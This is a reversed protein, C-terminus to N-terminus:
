KVKLAVLAPLEYIEFKDFAPLYQNPVMTLFTFGATGSANNGGYPNSGGDYSQDTWFKITNDGAELDMYITITAFHQWSITNKFYHTEPEGGNISTVAYREVVNNNYSHSGSYQGNAYQMVVGYRGATPVTLPVELYREEGDFSTIGNVYTGGSAYKAFVDSRILPPDGAAPEGVVTADEAEISFIPANDTLTANIYDLGLKATSKVDIINIGTRLFVRVQTTQWRSNTNNVAVSIAHERDVDLILKGTNTTFYRVTVDYLGDEQVGMYFRSKHDSPVNNPSNSNGSQHPNVGVNANYGGIYGAGAFGAVATQRTLGDAVDYDSFEAQIRYNPNAGVSGNHTLEIADLNASGQGQEGTDQNYRSITISHSGATLDVWDTVMGLQNLSYDARLYLKYSPQDDITVFYESNQRQSTTGGGSQAPLDATSHSAEIVDLRYNGDAPVDVGFEVKSNVGSIGAVYQGNSSSRGGEAGSSTRPWTNTPNSTSTRAAHEAEYREFWTTQSASGVAPTVVAYYADDWATDVALTVSGDVVDFNGDVIQQPEALYGTLGTYGARWATIHVQSSGALFAPSDEHDTVNNFVVHSPGTTGGFAIGVQKKDDNITSMGYLGDGFSDGEARAQVVAVKAMDGELDAYWKYLWWAGNPENQGALLSGYSNATNWYPLAGTVKLEDYRSLYQVLHGGNAIEATAAYENIDVEIPFPSERVPYLAAYAAANAAEVARFNALGDAANLYSRRSLLHWSFLEPLCDNEVCFAVFPPIISQQYSLLNPGSIKAGPDIAKIADTVLKWDAFFIARSNQGTTSTSTLSPYRSGNQEPENYPIYIFREDVDVGPHTAAYADKYAKIELTQPIIAENVYEEGTRSPYYWRAYYDQMVVQVNHAGAEFFYDSIRLADGSPHQVGNPAKQSVHSPKLPIITNIDPVNPESLGYLAGSGEHHMEGLSRDAVDVTIEAWQAAVATTPAVSVLSTALVGAISFSIPRKSKM